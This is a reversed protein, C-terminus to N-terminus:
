VCELFVFPTYYPVCADFLSVYATRPQGLLPPPRTYPLQQHQASIQVGHQQALASYRQKTHPALEKLRKVDDALSGEVKVAEYFADAVEDRACLDGEPWLPTLSLLKSSSAFRTLTVLVSARKLGEPPPAPHALWCDEKFSM